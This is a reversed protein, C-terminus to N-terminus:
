HEEEEGRAEMHWLIRDITRELHDAFRRTTVGVASRAPSDLDILYRGDGPLDRWVVTSEAIGRPGYKSRGQLVQLAGTLEAPTSLFTLSRSETTDDFSDFAASRSNAYPDPEPPETVISIEPLRGAEVEPLQAVLLGPLEEPECEILTVAGGHDVTEGPQQTLVCARRGSRVGHVRLHTKPNDIDSDRWGHMGVFVEPRAVTDFVAAFGPELREDLADGIEALERLYDDLLPTRSLYLFPSPMAGSRYRNCLVKFEVDTFEWRM